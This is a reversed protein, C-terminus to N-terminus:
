QDLNEERYKHKNEKLAKYNYCFHLLYQIICIFQVLWLVSLASFEVMVPHPPSSATVLSGFDQLNWHFCVPYPM